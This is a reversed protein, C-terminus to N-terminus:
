RRSIRASLVDRGGGVGIVALAVSTAMCIALKSQEPVYYTQHGSM